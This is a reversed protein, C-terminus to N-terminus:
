NRLTRELQDMIVRFREDDLKEHGTAWMELKGIRGNQVRLDDRVDRVLKVLFVLLAGLGSELLVIVVQGHDFM